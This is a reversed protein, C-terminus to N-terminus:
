QLKGRDEFEAILALMEVDDPDTALTVNFDGDPCQRRIELVAKDIGLGLDHTRWECGDCSLWFQGDAERLIYIIFSM